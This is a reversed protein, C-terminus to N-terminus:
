LSDDGEGAEAPPRRAWGDAMIVHHRAPPDADADRAHLGPLLDPGQARESSTEPEM